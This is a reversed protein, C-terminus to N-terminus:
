DIRCTDGYVAMIDKLERLLQTRESPTLTRTEPLDEGSELMAIDRRVQRCGKHCIAEVLVEVPSHDLVPV